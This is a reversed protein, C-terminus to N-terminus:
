ANKDKDKGDDTQQPQLEPANVPVPGPGPHETHEGLSVDPNLAAASACEKCCFVHQQTPDGYIESNVFFWGKRDNPDLDNGPCDPNDCSITVQQSQEIGM